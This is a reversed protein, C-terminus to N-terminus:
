GVRELSEFVRPQPVAKGQERASDILMKLVDQGNSVAEVYTAGHTVPMLVNGAWEPLTVLYAQDEDSWEILISYRSQENMAATEMNHLSM